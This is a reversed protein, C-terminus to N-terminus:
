AGLLGRVSNPNYARGHRNVHGHKQLAASIARLSLGKGKYKKALTITKQEGANPILKDGNLQYGHPISGVRKGQAKIHQMAQRTREALQEREFEALAALVRFVVRGAPSTTDIMEQISVLDSGAQELEQVLRLTDLTNRSLRSLSYVVLAAKHAKAATLAQQLGPRATNKGSLGNDSYVGVLESNHLAAWQRIKEIQLDLSVGDTVQATTSVRLYAITKM